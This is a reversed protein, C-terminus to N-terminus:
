FVMCRISEMNAELLDLSKQIHNLEREYYKIARKAADLQKKTVAVSKKIKEYRSERDTRCRLLDEKEALLISYLNDICELSNNVSDCGNEYMLTQLKKLRTKAMPFAEPIYLQLEMHNNRIILMNNQVRIM